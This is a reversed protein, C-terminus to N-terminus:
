VADDEGPAVRWQHTNCPEIFPVINEYTYWGSPEDTDMVQIKKGQAISLYLSALRISCFRNVEDRTMDEPIKHQSIIELQASTVM